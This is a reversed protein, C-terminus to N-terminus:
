QQLACGTASKLINHEALNHTSQKAITHAIDTLQFRKMRPTTAPGTFGCLVVRLKVPSVRRPTQEACVSAFSVRATDKQRCRGDFGGQEQSSSSTLFTHPSLQKAGDRSWQPQNFVSTFFVTMSFRKWTPWCPVWSCTAPSQVDAIADPLSPASHESARTASPFACSSPLGVAENDFQRHALDWDDERM